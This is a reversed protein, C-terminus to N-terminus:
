WVQKATTGPSSGGCAAAIMLAVAALGLIGLRKHVM